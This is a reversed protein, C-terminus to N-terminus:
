SAAAQQESAAPLDLPEVPLDMRGLEAPLQKANLRVRARAWFLPALEIMRDAPWLPVLRSVCRLYEEPDLRHL